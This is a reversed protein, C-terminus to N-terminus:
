DRVTFCVDIIDNVIEWEETKNGKVLSNKRAWKEWKSIKDRLGDLDIPILDSIQIEGDIGTSGVIVLKGPQDTNGEIFFTTTRQFRAQRVAKMTQGRNMKFLSRKFELNLSHGDIEVHADIDSFATRKPLVESLPNLSWFGEIWKQVSKINNMNFYFQELQEGNEDMVLVTRQGHADKRMVTVGIM